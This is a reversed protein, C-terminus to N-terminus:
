EPPTRWRRALLTPVLFVDILGAALLIYGAVDPLNGLVDPPGAVVLLGALVMAVGALRVAQMAMFRAAAPDRRSV